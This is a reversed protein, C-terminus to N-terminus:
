GSAVELSKIPAVTRVSVGGRTGERSCMEAVSRTLRFGCGTCAASLVTYLLNHRHGPAIEGDVVV